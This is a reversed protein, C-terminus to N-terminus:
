KNYTSLKLEKKNADLVSQVRIGEKLDDTGTLERGNIKTMSHKKYYVSELGTRSLTEGHGDCMVMNTKGNHAMWISNSRWTTSVRPVVNAVQGNTGVGDTILLSSSPDSYKDVFLAFVDWFEPIFWREDKSGYNYLSSAGGAIDAAPMSYRGCNAGSMLGGNASNSMYKNSPCYFVIPMLWRHKAGSFNFYGLGRSTPGDDSVDPCKGFERDGLLQYWEAYWAGNFMKGVDNLCMSDYIYAQKMRSLCKITKAKARAAGLAPLLMGALIAIIAVVVLLEILTFQKRTM